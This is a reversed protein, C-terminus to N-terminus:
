IKKQKASLFIDNMTWPHVRGWRGNWNNWYKWKLHSKHFISIWVLQSLNIVVVAGKAEARHKPALMTQSPNKNWKKHIKMRLCRKNHDKSLGYWDMDYDEYPQELHFSLRQSSAHHHPSLTSTVAITQKRLHNWFYWINKTMWLDECVRMIWQTEFTKSNCKRNKCENAGDCGEWIEMKNTTASKNREKQNIEKFLTLMRKGRGKGKLNDIKTTTGQYM